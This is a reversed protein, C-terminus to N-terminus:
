KVAAAVDQDTRHDGAGARRRQGNSAVGERHAVPSSPVSAILLRGCCPRVTCCSKESKNLIRSKAALPLKSARLPRQPAHLHLRRQRLQRQGAAAEPLLRVPDIRDDARTDEM